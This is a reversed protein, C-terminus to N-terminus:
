RADQPQISRRAARVALRGLGAEHLDRFVVRAREGPDPVLAIALIRGALVRPSCGEAFARARLRRALGPMAGLCVVVAEDPDDNSM